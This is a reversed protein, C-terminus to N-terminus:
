RVLIVTRLFSSTDDTLNGSTPDFDILFLYGYVDSGQVRDFFIGVIGTVVIEPNGAQIRGNQHGQMFTEPNFTPVAALRPSAMGMGGVVTGRPEGNPAAAGWLFRADPDQAILAAVGQATPGIMNGPENTLADGLDLGTTSCGAIRSRYCNGGTGCGDDIVYPYYWSPSINTGNGSKLVLQLGHDNDELM